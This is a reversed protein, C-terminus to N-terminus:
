AHAEEWAKRLAAARITIEEISQQPGRILESGIGVAVAGARVYDALNDVSIGGTPVFDVDNLPARLAKLYKPGLVESPFLKLMRCGAVFANQAETATFVGPVHLIDRKQSYAVSDPDFNPSVLFQAGANLALDVQNVSRVTGAGVLLDAGFRTRLEKIAELANSTNLTVEMVPVRAALLARGIELIRETSFQGRIIAIIGEHKLRIAIQEAFHTPM